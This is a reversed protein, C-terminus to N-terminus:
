KGTEMSRRCLQSLTVIGQFNPHNCIDLEYHCLQFKLHSRKQEIFDEFYFKLALKCINEINFSMYNDNFDLASSLTLLEMTQKNFRSNLEQLQSNIVVLFLEIWFHHEMVNPQHSLCIGLIYRSDMNSIEIEHKKCFEKVSELLNFWEDDGM